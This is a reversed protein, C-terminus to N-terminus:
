VTLYWLSVACSLKCFSFPASAFSLNVSGDDTVYTLSQAILLPDEPDLHMMQQPPAPGDPGLGGNAAEQQQQFQQQPNNMSFNPNYQHLQQQQGAFQSRQMSSSPHFPPTIATDAHTTQVTAPWRTPRKLALKRAEEIFARIFLLPPRPDNEATGGRCLTSTASRGVVMDVTAENADGDRRQTHLTPTPDLREYEARGLLM